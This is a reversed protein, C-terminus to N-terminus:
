FRQCLRQAALVAVPDSNGLQAQSHGQLEDRAEAISECSNIVKGLNRQEATCDVGRYMCPDSSRLVCGNCQRACYASMKTARYEAARKLDTM